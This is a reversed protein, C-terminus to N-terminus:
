FIFLLVLVNIMQLIAMKVIFETVIINGPFNRRPMLTVNHVLSSHLTLHALWMKNALRVQAQCLVTGNDWSKLFIRDRSFNGIRYVVICASTLYICRYLVNESFQHFDICEVLKKKLKELTHFNQGSFRSTVPNWSQVRRSLM